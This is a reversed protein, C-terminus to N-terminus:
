GGGRYRSGYWDGLFGAASGLGQQIAQTGAYTSQARQQAANQLNAGMGSAYQMGQSGM